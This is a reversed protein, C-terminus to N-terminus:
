GRNKSDEKWVVEQGASPEYSDGVTAGDVWAQHKVGLGMRAGYVRRVDGVNTRRGLQADYCRMKFVRQEDLSSEQQRYTTFINADSHDQTVEGAEAGPKPPSKDEVELKVDVKGSLEVKVPEGDKGAVQAQVDHAIPEGGPGTIETQQPGTPTAPPTTIEEDKKGRWNRWSM